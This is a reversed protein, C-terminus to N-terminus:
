LIYSAWTKWDGCRETVDCRALQVMNERLTEKLLESAIEFFYKALNEASPNFSLIENLNQHDLEDVMPKIKERIDGFDILWARSDLADGRFV